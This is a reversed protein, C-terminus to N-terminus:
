RGTFKSTYKNERVTRDKSLKFLISIQDGSRAEGSGILENNIMFSHAWTITYNKFDFAVYPQMLVEQSYENRYNINLGLQGIFLIEKRVGAIHKKFTSELMLDVYVESSRRKTSYLYAVTPIFYVDLKDSTYMDLFKLKANVLLRTPYLSDKTVISVSDNLHITESDLKNKTKVFNLAGIGFDAHITQYLAAVDSSFIWTRYSRYDGLGPDFYKGDTSTVDEGQLGIKSTNYWLAQVRPTLALVLKRPNKRKYNQNMDLHYGYTIGVNTENLYDFSYQFFQFGLAMNGFQSFFENIKGDKKFLYGEGVKSHLSLYYSQPTANGIGYFRQDRGVLIPYYNQSGVYAPNLLYNDFIHYRFQENQQANLNFALLCLVFGIVLKRMFVLKGEM